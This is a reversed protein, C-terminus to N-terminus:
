KHSTVEHGTSGYGGQGRTTEDLETVENWTVSEYKTVVMQAIRMDPEVTFPQNSTNLLIVGVEGRYDADITGVGNAPMIGFKAAMGSRARIQAEYGPSLAIAFGTPIIAREHPAIVVPADICAMVDMGAAHETQYQPYSAKPNLKIISVNM